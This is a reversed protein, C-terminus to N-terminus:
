SYFLGESQTLAAVKQVHVDQVTPFMLAERCDNEVWRRLRILRQDNEERLCCSRATGSCSLATYSAGGGTGGPSRRGRSGCCCLGAGCGACACTCTSVGSHPGAGAAAASRSGAGSLRQQTTTTTTDSRQRTGGHLLALLPAVGALTLPGLAALVAVGPCLLLEM